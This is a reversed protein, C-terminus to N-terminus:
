LLKSKILQELSHLNNLAKSIVNKDTSDAMALTNLVKAIQNINNSTKYLLFNYRNYQETGIVVQNAIKTPCNSLFFAKYFASKNKAECIAKEFPAIEEATLRFSVVTSKKM